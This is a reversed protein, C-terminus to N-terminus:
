WVERAHRSWHQNLADQAGWIALPWLVPLAFLVFLLPASTRPDGHQEDLSAVARALGGFVWLNAIPVLALAAGLRPSPADLGGAHARVDALVRHVWVVFYLGLTVACLLVVIAPERTTGRPPAADPGGDM